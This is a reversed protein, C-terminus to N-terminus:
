RRKYDEDSKFHKNSNSLSECKRKRPPLIAGKVEKELESFLRAALVEKNGSRTLGRNRLEKKLEAYKLKSVIDILKVTKEEEMRGRKQEPVMIDPPQSPPRKSGIVSDRSLEVKKKEGVEVKLIVPAKALIIRTIEARKSVAKM